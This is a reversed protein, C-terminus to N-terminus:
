KLLLLKGGSTDLDRNRFFMLFFGIVALALVTSAIIKGTGSLFTVIMNEAIKEDDILKAPLIPINITQQTNPSIVRIFLDSDIKAANIIRPRFQLRGVQKPINPTLILSEPHSSEIEVKQLISEIGTIIIDNEELKDVHIIRPTVQVAPALRLNIRDFVGSPILRVELNMQINKGRSYTTIEDMTVLPQIRCAYAKAISDFLPTVEFKKIVNPDDCSLKCALFDFSYSINLNGCLNEDNTILNSAKNFDQQHHGIVFHGNYAEGNFVDQKKLFQVQDPSRVQIDYSVHAGLRNGHFVTVKQSPPVSLVVGLSGNLDINESNASWSHIDNLPSDFCIIDGVTAIMKDGFMGLKVALKVYDEPHKINNSDKLSVALMNSGKRLLRLALTFNEGNHIEVTDRNSLQWNIDELSHSFKNGLNDHLTLTLDFSLDKPLEKEIGKMQVGNSVASIMVYHINKIEVPIDLKQDSSASSAVILSTGLTEFSKIIGDKSVNIVSRDAQDNIEYTTDDLNTKLQVNMRPPIIIPDHVIRKPSELELTKFVSIDMTAQFKTNGHHVVATVKAKGQKLGRVRM